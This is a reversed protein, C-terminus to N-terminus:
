WSTSRLYLSLNVDSVEPIDKVIKVVRNKREATLATGTINVVGNEAVEINLNHVFLNNRILEAEIKKALSLRKMSEIATLSCAKM